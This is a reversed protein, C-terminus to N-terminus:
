CALRAGSSPNAVSSSGAETQQFLAKLLFCYLVSFAVNAGGLSHDVTMKGLESGSLNIGFLNVWTLKSM